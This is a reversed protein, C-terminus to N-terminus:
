DRNRAARWVALGGLVAALLILGPAHVPAALWHSVGEQPLNLDHGPHALAAGAGALYMTIAYKM